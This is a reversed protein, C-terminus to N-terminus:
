ILKKNFKEIFTILGAVWFSTSVPFTILISLPERNFVWAWNEKRFIVSQITENIGNIRYFWMSLHNYPLGFKESIVPFMSVSTFDWIWVLVIVFVIYGLFRKINIHNFM